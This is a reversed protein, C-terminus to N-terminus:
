ERCKKAGKKIMFDPSLIQEVESKEFLKVKDSLPAGVQVWNKVAAYDQANPYWWHDSPPMQPNKSDNSLDLCIAIRHLRSKLQEPRMAFTDAHCETCGSMAAKASILTEPEKVETKLGRFEPIMLLDEIVDKMKRKRSEISTVVESFRHSPLKLDKGLFAELLWNTQCDLYKSTRTAKEVLEHFNQVKTDTMENSSDFFRLNGRFPESSIGLEMGRMTRGIPDLRNHCAACDKQTAHKDAHIKKIEDVIVQEDTRGLALRLEKQRQSERELAPSMTDCMMIRFFAAARKRNQNLSSNWYRLLFKRTSFLGAINPHGKLNFEAAEITQGNELHMPYTGSSQSSIKLNTLDITTLDFMANSVSVNAATYIPETITQSTFLEDFSKNDKLTRYVLALDRGASPDQFVQGALIMQSLRSTAPSKYGMRETVEAYFLAYFEPQNMKSRIYNRFFKELCSVTTCNKSRMEKQLAEYDSPYPWSGVLRQNIKNLFVVPSLESANLELAMHNLVVFACLTWLRLTKM